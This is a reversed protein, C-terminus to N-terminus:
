AEGSSGPEGPRARKLVKQSSVRKNKKGADATATGTLAVGTAVLLATATRFKM